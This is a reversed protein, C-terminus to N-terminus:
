YSTLVVLLADKDMELRNIPRCNYNQYKEAYLYLLLVARVIGKLFSM